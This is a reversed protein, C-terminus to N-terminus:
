AREQAMAASYVACLERLVAMEDGLPPAGARAQVARTWLRQAVDHPIRARSSLFAPVDTSGRPMRSRLREDAFRSYSALAHGTNRTRAYLAGVAEVHEVFARRRPPPEPRPRALRVGVAFFLVLTAFVAHVLGMGLGARLLAAVPTTPPSLGDEVGAMRVELRDANSLIAVMAAANGPRALGANKMLEDSAIGLVFGKGHPLTAAYTMGDDFWGVRDTAISFALASGEALEGRETAKAYVSRGKAASGGEDDDGDDGEDPSTTRALLRRATIKHPPSAIASAAGFAKPWEFPNGALILIGGADVWEVLHARTDDDMDTTLLDILVAPEREGPKPLALSSLSTRLPTVTVGQRRLVDRFLE